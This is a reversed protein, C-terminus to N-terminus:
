TRWITHTLTQSLALTLCALLDSEVTVQKVGELAFTFQVLAALLLLLKIQNSARENEVNCVYM